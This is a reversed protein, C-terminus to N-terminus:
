HTVLTLRMRPDPDPSEPKALFVLSGRLIVKQDQDTDQGAWGPRCRAQGVHVSSASRGRGTSARDRARPLLCDSFCSGVPLWAMWDKALPQFGVPWRRAPGEGCGAQQAVEWRDPGSGEQDRSHESQCTERHWAPLCTSPVTSAGPGQALGLCTLLSGPGPCQGLLDPHPIQRPGYLQPEQQRYLVSVTEWALACVM